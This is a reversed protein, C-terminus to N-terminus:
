ERYAGYRSPSTRYHSLDQVIGDGDAAVNGLQPVGNVAIRLDAQIQGPRLALHQVSEVPERQLDAPAPREARHGRYQAAALGAPRDQEAPVHVRQRDRLAGPKRIGRGDLPDHVGAPVVQVRGHQGARGPQQRSALRLQGAIDDEHELGALLPQPARPLHDVLSHEVRGPLPRHGREAQVDGRPQQRQSDRHGPRARHHRRRVRQLHRDAPVAAVSGLRVPGSIRDRSGAFDDDGQLRHDGPPEVYEIRDHDRDAAEVGPRGVVDDRVLRPELGRDAREGGLCAGGHRGGRWGQHALDRRRVAQGSLHLVDAVVRHGDVVRSLHREGLLRDGPHQALAAKDRGRVRDSARLIEGVHELLDGSREDHQARARWVGIRGRCREIV